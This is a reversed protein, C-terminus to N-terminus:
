RRGPKSRRGMGMREMLSRRRAKMPMLLEMLGSLTGTRQRGMPFRGMLRRGMTMRPRLGLREMMPAKGAAGHMRLRPVPTAAGGM